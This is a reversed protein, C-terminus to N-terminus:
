PAEKCDAWMDQAAVVQWLGGRKLWTDTWILCRTLTGGGAADDVDSETPMEISFM